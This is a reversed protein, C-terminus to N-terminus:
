FTTQQLKFAVASSYKRFQETPKSQPMESVRSLYSILVDEKYEFYTTALSLLFSHHLM